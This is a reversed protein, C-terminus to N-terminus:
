DGMLIGTMSNVVVVVVDWALDDTKAPDTKDSLYVGDRSGVVIGERSSVVLGAFATQAGLSAMVALTLVAMM